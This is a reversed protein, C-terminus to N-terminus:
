KGGRKKVGEKGEVSVGTAGKAKDDLVNEPKATLIKKISEKRELEKAKKEAGEVEDEGGQGFENVRKM